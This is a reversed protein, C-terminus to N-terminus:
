RPLIAPTAVGAKWLAFDLVMQQAKEDKISEVVAMLERVITPAQYPSAPGEGTAVWHPRRDALQCLRFFNEIRLNKTEGSKWQYVSSRTVGIHDALAQVSGYTKEAADITQELRDGFTPPTIGRARAAERAMALMSSVM